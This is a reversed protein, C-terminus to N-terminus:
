SLLAQFSRISAKAASLDNNVNFEHEVAVLDCGASIGAAIGASSDEFIVAQEPRLNLRQLARLYAEPDPKHCSVDEKTIVEKFFGQLQWKALLREVMWLAGSSVVACVKGDRQCQHLFDVVGDTLEVENEILQQYYERFRANLAEYPPTIAAHKFFHVTVVEWSEGMVEKYIHYDVEGHYDACAMALAKGKLPESNVLTGDMDFLYGQYHQM